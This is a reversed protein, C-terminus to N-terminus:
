DRRSSPHREQYARLANQCNALNKVPEWINEHNEYEKWKVLYQRQERRMRSSLITEVKYEPEQDNKNVVPNPREPKNSY